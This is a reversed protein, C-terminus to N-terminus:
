LMAKLAVLVRRQTLLALSVTCMKLSPGAGVDSLAFLFSLMSLVVTRGREACEERLLGIRSSLGVGESEWVSSERVVLLPPESDVVTGTACRLFLPVNIPIILRVECFTPVENAADTPAYRGEATDSIHSGARSKAHSLIGLCPMAGDPWPAPPPLSPCDVPLPSPDVAGNFLTTAILLLLGCTM